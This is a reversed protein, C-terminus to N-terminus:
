SSTQGLVWLRYFSRSQVLPTSYTLHSAAKLKNHRQCHLSLWIIKPRKKLLLVSLVQVLRNNLASSPSCINQNQGIPRPSPLAVKWDLWRWGLLHRAAGGIGRMGLQLQHGAQQQGSQGRQAFFWRLPAPQSLLHVKLSWNGGGMWHQPPRPPATNVAEWMARHSRDTFCFLSM